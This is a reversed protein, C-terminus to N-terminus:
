LYFRIAKSSVLLMEVFGSRGGNGDTLRGAEGKARHLMTVEWPTDTSVAAVLM